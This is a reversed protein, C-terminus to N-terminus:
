RRILTLWANKDPISCPHHETKRLIGYRCARLIGRASISKKSDIATWIRWCLTVIKGRVVLEREIPLSIFIDQEEDFMGELNLMWQHNKGSSSSHNKDKSLHSCVNHLNKLEVMEEVNRQHCGMWRVGWRNIERIMMFALEQMWIKSLPNYDMATNIEKSTWIPAWSLGKLAAGTSVEDARLLEKSGPVLHKLSM